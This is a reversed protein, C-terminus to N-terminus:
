TEPPRPSVHPDGDRGQQPGPAPSLRQLVIADFLRPQVAGYVRAPDNQSQRALMAYATTDLAAGRRRAQTAWAAFQAPPLARVPFNMDSFGDGSFHASQGYVTGPRDARLHLETEMGNMTYIMSGLRPVFFTNMVSASTLRFHVPTGVPLVLMNVTAIGQQPYIFLWKWDLSVVQVEMPAGNGATPAIPRRPDLDHSGVWIVGGLFLIVLIPISWVIMEVRGSYVFDPRYRARDNGARFWWAFALTAIITPVVIALMITLANLLITRNAAAIPGAPALISAPACGILAIPLMAALRRILVRPANPMPEADHCTGRFRITDGM